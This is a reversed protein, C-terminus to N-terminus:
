VKEKMDTRILYLEGNIQRVKIPYGCRYATRSLASQAAFAGTYEDKRYELKAYRTNMKMFEDLWEIPKKYANRKGEEPLKEVSVLKM